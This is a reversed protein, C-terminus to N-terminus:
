ISLPPWFGQHLFAPASGLLLATNGPVRLQTPYAANQLNIGFIVDSFYEGITRQSPIKGIETTVTNKVYLESLTM